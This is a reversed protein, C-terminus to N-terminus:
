ISRTECMSSVSKGWQLNWQESFVCNCARHERTISFGSFYSVAKGIIPVIQQCLKLLGSSHLKWNARVEEGIICCKWWRIKKCTCACWGHQLQSTCISCCLIIFLCIIAFTANCVCFSTRKLKDTVLTHQHLRKLAGWRSTYTITIPILYCCASM